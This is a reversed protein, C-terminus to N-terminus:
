DLGLRKRRMTANRKEAYHGLLFCLGLFAATDWYMTDM